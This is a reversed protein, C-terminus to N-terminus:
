EVRAPFSFLTNQLSDSLSSTCGLSGRAEFFLNFSTPTFLFFVSALPPERVSVARLPPFIPPLLRCWLPMDRFSRARAARSSFGFLLSLSWRSVARSASSARRLTPFLSFLSGDSRSPLARFFFFFGYFSPGPRCFSVELGRLPPSWRLRGDARNPFAGRAPHRFFPAFSGFWPCRVGLGSPLARPSFKTESRAAELVVGTRLLPFPSGAWLPLPFFGFRFTRPPIKL